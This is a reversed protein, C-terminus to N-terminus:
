LIKEKYIQNVLNFVTTQIGGIDLVSKLNLDAKCILCQDKLISSINEKNCQLLIHEINEKVQCLDCFGTLHKGM